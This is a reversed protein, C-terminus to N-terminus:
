TGLEVSTELRVDGAHSDGSDRYITYVHGDGPMVARSANIQGSANTLPVTIELVEDASSVIPLPLVITDTEGPVTSDVGPRYSDIKININPFPGVTGTNYRIRMFYQRGEVYSRPVPVTDTEVTETTGASLAFAKRTGLAVTSSAPGPTTGGDISAMVSDLFTAAESRSSLIGTTKDKVNGTATPSVFSSPDAIISEAHIKGSSETLAGSATLEGNVKYEDGTRAEINGAIFNSSVKVKGRTNIDGLIENSSIDFVDAATGTSTDVINGSIKNSRINVNHSTGSNVGSITYSSIKESDINLTKETPNAIYSGGSMNVIHTTANPLDIDFIIDPNSPKENFVKVDVFSSSDISFTNGGNKYGFSGTLSGETEIVNTVSDIRAGNVQVKNKEDIRLGTVSSDIKVDSLVSEVDSSGPGSYNINGAGTINLGYINTSVGNSVFNNSNLDLTAGHGIIVLDQTESVFPAALTHTEPSLYLIGNFGSSQIAARASEIDPFPNFSDNLSGGGAEADTNVWAGVQPLMIIPKGDRNFYTYKRTLNPM